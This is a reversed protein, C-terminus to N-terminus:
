LNDFVSYFPLMILQHRIQKALRLQSEDLNQSTAGTVAKSAAALPISLVAIMAAALLLTGRNMANKNMTM